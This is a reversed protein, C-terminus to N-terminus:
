KASTTSNEFNHIDHFTLKMKLLIGVSELTHFFYVRMGLLKKGDFTGDDLIVSGNKQWFYKFFVYFVNKLYM